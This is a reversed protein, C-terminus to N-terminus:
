RRLSRDWPTLKIQSYCPPNYFLIIFHQVLPGQEFFLFRQSFKTQPYVRVQVQLLPRQDGPHGHGPPGKGGSGLLGNILQELNKKVM